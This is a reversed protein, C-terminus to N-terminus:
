KNVQDRGAGGGDKAFLKTALLRYSVPRDGVFPFHNRFGEVYRDFDSREVYYRWPIPDSKCDLGIHGIYIIEGAAVSFSGGVDENNVILNSETGIVHEVNQVSRAVKVDFGILVYRGPTVLLAYPSYSDQVLFKSPTELDITGPAQSTSDTSLSFTLKELQANEFRGCHWKRGWNVQLIVIGETAGRMKFEDASLQVPTGANAGVIPAVLAALMVIPCWTNV